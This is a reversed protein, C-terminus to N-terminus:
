KNLIELLFETALKSNMHALHSVVDKRLAPDKENRAIEVMAEANGQVFLGQLAAKKM